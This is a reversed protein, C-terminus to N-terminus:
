RAALALGDIGPMVIYTVVLHVNKTNKMLVYAAEASDAEVVTYLLGQLYSATIEPVSEDDDVPLIRANGDTGSSFATDGAADSATDRSRPVEIDTKEGEAPKSGTVLDRGSLGVM